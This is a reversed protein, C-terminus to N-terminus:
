YCDYNVSAPSGEPTYYNCLEINGSRLSYDFDLTYNRSADEFEFAISKVLNATPRGLLGAYYLHEYGLLGLQKSVTPPLVGNSNPVITPTFRLIVPANGTEVYSILSINGGLYEIDATTTYSQGIGVSEDYVVKKWKVLRGDLGYNFTYVNRNVRMEAVYGLSNLTLQTDSGTSNKVKVQQYGYTLQSTYSYSEGADASHMTGLAKTLRGGQYTFRWDYCPESNGRNTVVHLNYGTTSPLVPKLAPHDDDSCSAALLTAMAMALLTRYTKMRNRENPKVPLSVSFSRFVTFSLALFPITAGYPVSHARQAPRDTHLTSSAAPLVLFCSFAQSDRRSARGEYTFGWISKAM